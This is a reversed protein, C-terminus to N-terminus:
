AHRSRRDAIALAVDSTANTINQERTLKADYKFRAYVMGSQACYEAWQKQGPRMSGTSSKLEIELRWGEPAINGTIDAAGVPPGPDYWTFIEGKENRLPVQAVNQPWARVGPLKCLEVLLMKRFDNEIPEVAAPGPAWVRHRATRV